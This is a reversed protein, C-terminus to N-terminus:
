LATQPPCNKVTGKKKDGNKLGDVIFLHLM